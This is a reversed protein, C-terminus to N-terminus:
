ISFKRFFLMYRYLSSCKSSWADNLKIPGGLGHHWQGILNLFRTASTWNCRLLRVKTCKQLNNISLHFATSFFFFMVKLIYKWISYKIEVESNVRGHDKDLAMHMLTSYNLGKQSKQFAARKQQILYIKLLDIRLFRGKIHINKHSFKCFGEQYM